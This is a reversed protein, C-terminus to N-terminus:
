ALLSDELHRWDMVVVLQLTPRLRLDDHAEPDVARQQRQDRETGDLQSSGGMFRSPLFTTTTPSAREPTDAAFNRAERPAWTVTVSLAGASFSARGIAVSAPQALSSSPPWTSSLKVPASRITMDGPTGSSSSVRAARAAPTSTM